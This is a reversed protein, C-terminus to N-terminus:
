DAFAPPRDLPMDAAHASLLAEVERRLAPNGACAEDLHAHAFDPLSAVLGASVSRLWARRIM